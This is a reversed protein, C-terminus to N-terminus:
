RVTVFDSLASPCTSNLLVSLITKEAFHKRYHKLEPEIDELQTYFEYNKAKDANRLNSNGAM